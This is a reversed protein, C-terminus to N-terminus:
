KSRTRYNENLRFVLALLIGTLREAITKSTRWLGFFTYYPEVVDVGFLNREFGRLSDLEVIKENLGKTPRTLLSIDVNDDWDAVAYPSSVQLRVTFMTGPLTIVDSVASTAAPSVLNITTTRGTLMDTAAAVQNEITFLWRYRMVGRAEDAYIRNTPVIKTVKNAAAVFSYGYQLSAFPGASRPDYTLRSDFLTLYPEYETAHVVRLLRDVQFNSYVNEASSGMVVQHYANLWPPLSQSVFAEPIYEEGLDRLNQKGGTKNLLLTRAHNIM